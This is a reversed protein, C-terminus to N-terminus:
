CPLTVKASLSMKARLLKLNKVSSLKNFSNSAYPMQLSTMGNNLIDKHSLQVSSINPSQHNNIPLVRSTKKRFKKYISGVRGKSKKYEDFFVLYESTSKFRDFEHLLLQKVIDDCAGDFRIIIENANSSINDTSNNIDNNIKKEEKSEQKSVTATVTFRRIDTPKGAGDERFVQRKM